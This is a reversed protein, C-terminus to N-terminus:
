CLPESGGVYILTTHGMGKIKCISPWLNTPAKIFPDLKAYGDEYRTLFLKQLAEQAIQVVHHRM